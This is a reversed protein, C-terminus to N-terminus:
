LTERRVAILDSEAAVAPSEAPTKVPTAGRTDCAAFSLSWIAQMPVAFRAEAFTSPTDPWAM